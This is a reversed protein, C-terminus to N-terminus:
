KQYATTGANLLYPNLEYHINVFDRYIDCTQQDFKWPRHENDGGNEMLPTFAGM